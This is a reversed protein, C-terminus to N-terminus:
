FTTFQHSEMEMNSKKIYASLFTATPETFHTRRLIKQDVDFCTKKAVIICYRNYFYKNM